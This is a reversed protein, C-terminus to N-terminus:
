GELAEQEQESARRRSRHGLVITRVLSPFPGFRRREFATPYPAYRRAVLAALQAAGALWGLTIAFAPFPAYGVAFLEAMYWPADFGLGYRAGFSGLVLAPGALGALLLGFQVLRGQMRVQPLWLWLHLSPLLFILAFPNTAVVLLAVVALALLAGTYGAVEEEPRVPRRPLLRERSVLWGFVSLVVLGVIAGTAWAGAASSALGPPRADGDIWLGLAAFAYFVLGVWAWFGLRRRYGRLAPAVPIRRRRCRAFLDVIAAFCPLLAAILVLEIAWGPIIRAGLYLYHQRGRPIDIGDLANLLNQTARGIQGLRAVDLEEPIDRFSDLPKDPGATITVAPIGRALFPAHDYPSFPFGLDILQRLASPRAPRHGTEQELASAATAVLAPPATRATDGSLELRPAGSGAIGDLDVVAAVNRRYRSHKVFEAAGAAGFAGGDTSLFILTYSPQPPLASGGGAGSPQAAYARALEILAATGSANDVAGSGVGSNDRHAMVVVARNSRGVVRVLVNQLSVRGLGAINAAQRETEPKFGYPELQSRFWSAAGLAGSTGPTRDPYSTALERALNAANARDFAPPLTGSPLRTPERVSFAALLLPLAVLLWTGRYLRGNVPRELSGPRPRRSPTGASVAAM